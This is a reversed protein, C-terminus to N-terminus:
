KSFLALRKAIIRKMRSVKVPRIRMQTALDKIKLGNMLSEAVRREKKNLSDLLSSDQGDVGISDILQQGEQDVISVTEPKQFNRGKISRVSDAFGYKLFITLYAEFPTNSLPDFKLIAESVVLFGRSEIEEDSLIKSYHKGVKFIFKHYEEFNSSDIFPKNSLPNTLM